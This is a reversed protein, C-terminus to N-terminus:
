LGAVNSKQLVIPGFRGINRQLSTDAEPPLASEVGVVYNLRQQSLDGM